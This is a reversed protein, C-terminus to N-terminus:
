QGTAPHVPHKPVSTSQLAMKVAPAHRIGLRIIEGIAAVTQPTVTQGTPLVLVTESAMRSGHLDASRRLGQFARMRHLGPFFYRRARVGESWLVNLVEDRTLPCDPSVRAVVYQYNSAENDSYHLIDIGALNEFERVYSRYNAANQRVIEDMAELSGLGMAARIEDMKANTAVQVANDFSAIGFNRSLRLYQALREDNTAVAGGELSNVFKTAHFSYVCADGFSGIPKGGFTTGLAHAGDFLLPLKHEDALAQLATVECPLGWTHVGMIAVTESSILARVSEPSILHTGPDVDALVPQCGATLVGHATAVFTFDPVIVEGQRGLSRVLWEIAQTANGFAVVHDCESLLALRQEFEQLFAGDNTLWRRDFAEDIRRHFSDRSGLNPRGVHLADEFAPAGGLVALAREGKYDGNM